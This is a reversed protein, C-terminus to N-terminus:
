LVWNVVNKLPKKASNHIINLEQPVPLSTKKLLYTFVANGWLKAYYTALLFFGVLVGYTILFTLLRLNFM